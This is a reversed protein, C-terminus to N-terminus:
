GLHAPFVALCCLRYNQEVVFKTSVFSVALSWYCFVQESRYMSRFVFVNSGCTGLPVDPDFPQVNDATIKTEETEKKHSEMSNYIMQLAESERLHKFKEGEQEEQLMKQERDELEEEAEQKMEVDETTVDAEEEEGKGGEVKVTGEEGQQEQKKMLRERMQQARTQKFKEEKQAKEEQTPINKLHELTLRHEELQERKFSVGCCKVNRAYRQLYIHSQNRNHHVKTGVYNTQCHACFSM